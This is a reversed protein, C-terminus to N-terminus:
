REEVKIEFQTLQDTGDGSQTRVPEFTIFCDCHVVEKKNNVTFDCTYAGSQMRGNKLATLFENYEDMEKFFVKITGDVRERIVDRHTVGRGDVWEKYNEVQNLDYGGILAYPKLDFGAISITM